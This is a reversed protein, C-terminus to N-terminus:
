SSWDDWNGFVFINQKGKYFIRKKRIESKDITPPISKDQSYLENM